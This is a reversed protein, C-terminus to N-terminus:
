LEIKPVVKHRSIQAKLQDNWDKGITPLPHRIEATSPALGQITAALAYGAPVCAIIVTQTPNLSGGTSFYRANNDPFLAAYSLADLASEAIM